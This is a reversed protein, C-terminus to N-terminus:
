RITALFPLVKSLGRVTAIGVADIAIATGIDYGSGGMSKAWIVAGSSDQKLIYIEVGRTSSLTDRGFIATGQFFGTSYSNGGADIAIAIGNDSGSGGMKKVWELSTSQANLVPSIGLLCLLFFLNRTKLLKNNNM